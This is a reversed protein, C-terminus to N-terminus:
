ASVACSKVLMAYMQIFKFFLFLDGALMLMNFM